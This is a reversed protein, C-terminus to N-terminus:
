NDEKDAKDVLIRAESLWDMLRCYNDDNTAEDGNNAYIAEITVCAGEAAKVGERIIDLLAEERTRM